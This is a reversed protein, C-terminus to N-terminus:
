LWSVAHMEMELAADNRGEWVDMVVAVNMRVNFALLSLLVKMVPSKITLSVSHYLFCFIIFDDYLLLNSIKQYFIKGLAFCWISTFSFCFYPCHKIYLIEIIIKAVVNPKKNNGHQCNLSHWHCKVAVRCYWSPDPHLRLQLKFGQNYPNFQVSYIEQRTM